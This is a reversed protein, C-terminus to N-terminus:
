VEHAAPQQNRNRKLLPGEILEPISAMRWLQSIAM